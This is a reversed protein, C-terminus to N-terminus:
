KEKNEKCQSCIGFFYLQHGYIEGDFNKRAMQEIVGSDVDM